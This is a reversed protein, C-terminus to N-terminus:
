PNVSVRKSDSVALYQLFEEPDELRRLDFGEPVRHIFLRVEYDGAPLEFSDLLNPFSLERPVLAFVQDMYPRDVLCRDTDEDYVRVTWHFRMYPRTDFLCADASVVLVGDLGEVEFREMKYSSALGRTNRLREQLEARPMRAPPEAGPEQPELHLRVTTQPQQAQTRAAPSANTKLSHMLPLALASGAFILASSSWILTRGEFAHRIGMESEEHHAQYRQDHLFRSALSM